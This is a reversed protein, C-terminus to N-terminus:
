SRQSTRRRYIALAAAGALALTWTSPEPIEGNVPPPDPLALGYTGVTFGNWFENTLSTWTISSVAGTFRIIGHPETGCVGGANAQYAPGAVEVRDLAGCGWFGQGWSVVDFDNDFQYGNGNLSVIAFFLNDIPESFTLTKSGTQSLAIIDPTPPANDVGTPQGATATYPRLAANPETWYNTGGATQIFAIEGNYNVDVLTGGLDLVGTASGNAGTTGSIWDVWTVPAASLAGALVVFLLLRKM